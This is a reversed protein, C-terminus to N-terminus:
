AWAAAAFRGAGNRSPQALRVYGKRQRCLPLHSHPVAHQRTQADDLQRMRMGLICPEQPGGTAGLHEEDLRRGAGRAAATARPQRIGTLRRTAADREEGAVGVLLAHHDIRPVRVVHRQELAEAFARVHHEVGITRRKLGNGRSSRHRRPDGHGVAQAETRGGDDAEGGAAAQRGATPWMLRWAVRRSPEGEVAGAGIRRHHAHHRHHRSTAAPYVDAVLNGQLLRGDGGDRRPRAQQVGVVHLGVALARHRRPQPRVSKGDVLHLIAVNARHRRGRALPFRQHRQQAAGLLEGARPVVHGEAHLVHVREPHDAVAEHGLAGHLLQEITALLQADGDRGYVGQLAEGAVGM